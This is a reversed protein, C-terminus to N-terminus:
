YSLNLQYVTTTGSVEHGVLLLPQGNPSDAAAVFHLGEPGLDGVAAGETPWDLKDLAATTWDTRTNIYDELTPAQPNTVDYVLVGGFRELGVFAFTKEGITGLALGEPEPGKNDSRNDFGQGEEHNSNFFEKCPVTQGESTLECSKGNRTEILNATFKEFDAGSDWVQAGNEDRISISRAGYAYLADYMLRDGAPDEVGSANFLVPLGNADKRFGETWTVTLRGLNQDARCDGPNGAVAGCYGFVDPSLLGGAALARLQPPLDDGARRDFGDKHVLHKVRFEEVFGKKADGAWYADDDEGWARADGENATVLYTKGDAAGYAAISDPLYLGRLGPWTRIDVGMLAPKGDGDSADIENGASGHDKYGLPLIDTVRAAAIDIKALANNEQLTVWATSGDASVAIYEPEFDQEASAGPGYIRVGQNRLEAERGNFASFDATRVVPQAPESVDIISVSGKPDIQYDDSPEGENATLLTKGDPTFVINDPLAGVTVSSLLTLDAASYIAVRGPDTKDAAQIALAVLGDKVAVSNVESGALIGETRLTQLLRPAAPDTLDLVDLAGERANVVFARQSQPDFGVIEAASQGFVGSAYGGIKELVLSSPTLEPEPTPEPAPAPAPTPAPTASNDDDNGGCAALMAAAMLVSLAQLRYRRPAHESNRPSM